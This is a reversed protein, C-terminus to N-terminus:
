VFAHDFVRCGNTPSQMSIRINRYLFYITRPVCRVERRSGIFTSYYGESNREITGVKVQRISHLRRLKTSSGGDHEVFVNWLFSLRVINYSNSWVSYVPIFSSLFIEENKFGRNQFQIQYWVLRLDCSIRFNFWYNNLIYM